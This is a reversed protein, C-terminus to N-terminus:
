MCLYLFHNETDTAEIMTSQHEAGNKGLKECTAEALKDSEENPERRIYEGGDVAITVSSETAEVVKMDATLDSDKLTQEFAESASDQLSQCGALVLALLGFVLIKM